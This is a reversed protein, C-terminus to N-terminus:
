IIYTYMSQYTPIVTACPARTKQVSRHEGSRTQPYEALIYWTYNYYLEPRCNINYYLKAIRIYQPGNRLYGPQGFLVITVEDDGSATLVVGIPTSICIIYVDKFRNLIRIVGNCYVVVKFVCIIIRVIYVGRVYSYVSVESLKSIIIKFISSLKGGNQYCISLNWVPNTHLM